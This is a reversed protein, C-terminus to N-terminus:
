GGSKRCTPSGDREASNHLRSRAALARKRAVVQSVEVKSIGESRSRALMYRPTRRHAPVRHRVLAAPEAAVRSRAEGMRSPICIETDKRGLPKSGQRNHSCGGVSFVENAYLPMRRIVWPLNVAENLTSIVVM